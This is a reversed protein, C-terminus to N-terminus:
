VEYINELKVFNINYRHCKRLMYTNYTNLLEDLGTWGNSLLMTNFEVENYISGLTDKAREHLSNFVIKGFGYANYTVPLEIMRDYISQAADKNYGNEDFYSYIDNVDWEKLHINLDIKTELLYGNLQDALLYKCANKLKEDTTTNMINEYLAVVVYTAWGEAHVTSTMIKSVPHIDLNKMYCYAYLHGPYGEHALTSLVENKNELYLPNLTIKEVSKADIASKTYYAVANSVKASAEDMETIVIEPNNELEPVINKAFEKLYEMMESTSGDYIVQNSVFEEVDSVTNLGYKSALNKLENKYNKNTNDFETEIKEIYKETDLDSVGLLNELEISYMEKGFEYSSLYGIQSNDISGKFNKLGIMLENVGNFFNVSFAEKLQNIYEDHKASDITSKKIKNSLVDVLYFEDKSSILDELYKIMKDLTYDSYGYGKSTKDNVFNIYSKFATETSKVLDIMDVVDQEKRLTYSEISSIFNSVYGGFQDIYRGSLYPADKISYLDRYYEFFSVLQNFTVLQKPSLKKRKYGSLQELMQEFSSAYYNIMEDTYEETYTYWEAGFHDLNFKAPSEILINCAFNDGNLYWALFQDLYINFTFNDDHQIILTAHHTEVLANSDDYIYCTAYYDGVEKGVNNEYEVRFGKPLDGSIKLEKKFGDKIYIMDNFAIGYKSITPDGTIIGESVFYCGSLIFIFLINLFLFIKKM